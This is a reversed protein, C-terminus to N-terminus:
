QGTSLLKFNAWFNATGTHWTAVTTISVVCSSRLGNLFKITDISFQILDRGFIILLHQSNGPVIWKCATTLKCCYCRKQIIYYLLIKSM